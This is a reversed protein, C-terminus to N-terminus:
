PPPPTPLPQWHSIEHTTFANDCDMVFKNTQGFWRATRTCRKHEPAWNNCVLVACFRGNPKADEISVWGSGPSSLSAFIQYCQEITLPTEDVEMGNWKFWHKNWSGPRYDNDALWKAFAVAEAMDPSRFQHTAILGNVQDDWKIYGDADVFRRELLEVLTEERSNM